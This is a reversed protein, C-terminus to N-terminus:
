AAREKALRRKRREFDNLMERLVAALPVALLVGLFGALEGGVIIALIVLLPPVGVVKRVVLPHILNGEFQNVIIFLGAAMFAKLIGGAAFAIIIAPIAAMLSGFIPILEAIATFFTLLIANPVQLVLLGLYITVSIIVSMILQGQMWQGIKVRARQWLDLVYTEHQSPTVLRLFDDVGTEQIAFYFSLVAVLLFSFIGGFITSLLRFAGQSTDASFASRFEIITRLLSESEHGATIDVGFPMSGTLSAPLNLTNIYQPITAIFNATENLLPPFLFYVFGFFLGFVLLYVLLVALIRPIKYKRFFQVGPEMASALVVSTIVLLAIGRITWLAYAAAAIGIVTLVSGPTISIRIEKDM